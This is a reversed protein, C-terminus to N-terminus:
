KLRRGQTIAQGLPPWSVFSDLLKEM